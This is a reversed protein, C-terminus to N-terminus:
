QHRATREKNRSETINLLFVIPFKITANFIRKIRRPEQILRFFWELGIKQMWVPARKRVGAIFNFAGGVGMALRVHPLHPLTRHLWLEQNPAGFAIFLVNAGSDNIKKRIQQEEEHSPSGAHTGVINLHPNGHRLVEKTKEAIGDSGGLLFVKTEHTFKECLKKMIDTGTVRGKLPKKLFKAAMIVGTGDPINLDTENLVKQFPPNKRAELLMEPNPTAVFFHGDHRSTKELLLEVTEKETIVDFPVGLITVRGKNM